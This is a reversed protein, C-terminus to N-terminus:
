VHGTFLYRAAATGIAAITLIGTGVIGLVLAWAAAKSIRANTRSMMSKGKGKEACIAATDPVTSRDAPSRVELARARDRRANDAVDTFYTPLTSMRGGLWHTARHRGDAWLQVELRREGVTKAWEVMRCGGARSDFDSTFGDERLAAFIERAGPIINVNM